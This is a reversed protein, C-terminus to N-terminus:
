VGRNTRPRSEASSVRDGSLARAKMSAQPRMQNSIDILANMETVEYRRRRV